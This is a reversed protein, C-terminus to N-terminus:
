RSVKRYKHSSVVRLKLYQDRAEASLGSTMLWRSLEWWDPSSFAAHSAPKTGSEAEAQRMADFKPTGKGIPSGADVSFCETILQESEETDGGDRLAQDTIQPILKLTLQLLFTKM